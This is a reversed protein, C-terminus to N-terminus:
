VWLVVVVPITHGAKDVGMQTIGIKAFMFIWCFYFEVKATRGGHDIGNNVPQIIEPDFVVHDKIIFKLYNNSIGNM